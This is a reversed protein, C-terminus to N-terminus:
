RSRGMRRASSPLMAPIDEMDDDLDSSLASWSGAPRDDAGDDGFGGSVRGGGNSGSLRGGGKATRQTTRLSSGLSKFTRQKKRPSSTPPTDFIDRSANDANDNGNGNPQSAPRPRKASKPTKTKNSLAASTTTPNPQTAPLRSVPVPSSSPLIVMRQEQEQEENPPEQKQQQDQEPEQEATAAAAASARRGRRRTRTTEPEDSPFVERRRADDANGHEHQEDEPNAEDSRQAKKDRRRRSRSQSLYTLIPPSATPLEPEVEEESKPEIYLGSDLEPSAVRTSAATRTAPTGNQSGWRGPLSVEPTARNDDDEESLLAADEAEAGADDEEPVPRVPEKGKKKGKQSRKSAPRADAAAPGGEEQDEDGEEQDASGFRGESEYMECLYRACDRTTKYEWRPVAKRMRGWTVVLAQREYRGRFTGSVIAKWDIRSDTGAQSDRVACLLRYKVEPSIRRLDDRAKKLRWSNGAPLVTPVKDAVPETARIRKWKEICQLRSRTHGMAESITLWNILEEASKTSNEPMEKQIADVASEVLARLQDEEAETWYETKLMGRCVLYNRWRDRVDKQYRNILGAIYSWKKGHKEVLEVLEEDQEPTWTGRGAWNHFRQRTWSILKRRPRSPCADQITSWFRRVITDSSTQPNLHIMRNLEEQTLEENNRFRDVARTIQGQEIDSLPGSRYQGREPVEEDSDYGISDPAPQRKPKKTRWPIPSSSPPADAGDEVIPVLVKRQRTSQRLNPTAEAQPLEAFAQANEEEETSVFPQKAKRKASKPAVNAQASSVLVNSDLEPSPPQPALDETGGHVEALDIDGHGYEPMGEPAVQSRQGDSVVSIDDNEDTGGGSGVASYQDDATYQDGAPTYQDVNLVFDEDEGGAFGVNDGAAPDHGGDPLYQKGNDYPLEYPLEDLDMEDVPKPLAPGQGDAEAYGSDSNPREADAVLAGSMELVPDAANVPLHDGRLERSAELVGDVYEGDSVESTRSKKRSKAGSGRRGRKHSQTSALTENDNAPLDSTVVPLEEEEYNQEEEQQRQRQQRQREEEERRAAERAAAKAKKRQRKSLKPPSDPAPTVEEADTADESADRHRGDAPRRVAPPSPARQRQINRLYERRIATAEKGEKYMEDAARKLAAQRKKERKIKHKSLSKEPQTASYVQGDPSTSRGVSGVPQSANSPLGGPPLSPYRHSEPSRSRSRKRRRHWSLTGPDGPPYPLGLDDNRRIRPVPMTSPPVSASADDNEDTGAEPLLQHARPLPSLSRSRNGPPSEPRSSENGM